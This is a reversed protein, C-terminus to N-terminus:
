SPDRVELPLFQNDVGGLEGAMGPLAMAVETCAANPAPVLFFIGAM